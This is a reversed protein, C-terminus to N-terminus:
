AKVNLCETKAMPALFALKDTCHMPTDVIVEVGRSANRLPPTRPSQSEMAAMAAEKDDEAITDLNRPLRARRIMMSPLKSPAVEMTIRGVLQQAM